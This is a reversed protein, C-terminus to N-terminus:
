GFKLISKVISNVSYAYIQFNPDCFPFPVLLTLQSSLQSQAELPLPRAQGPRPHWVTAPLPWQGTIPIHSLGGRTEGRCFAWWEALDALTVAHPLPLSCCVHRADAM